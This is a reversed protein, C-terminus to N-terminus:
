ELKCWSDHQNFPILDIEVFDVPSESMEQKWQTWKWIQSQQPKTELSGLHHPQLNHVKQPLSHCLCWLYMKPVVKQYEAYM